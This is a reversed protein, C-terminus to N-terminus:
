ESAIRIFSAKLDKLVSIADARQGQIFGPKEEPDHGGCIHLKQQRKMFLVYFNKYSVLFYSECTNNEKGEKVTGPGPARPRVGALTSPAAPRM